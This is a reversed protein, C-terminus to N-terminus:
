SKLELLLKKDARNRKQRAKSENDNEEMKTMIQEKLYLLNSSAEELTPTNKGANDLAEQYLSESQNIYDDCISYISKWRIMSLVGDAIFTKSRFIDKREDESFKEKMMKIDKETKGGSLNELAIQILKWFQEAEKLSSIATNLAWKSVETAIITKKLREIQNDDSTIQGTLLAVKGIVERNIDELENRQKMIEVVQDRASKATATADTAMQSFTASLENFAQSMTEFAAKSEKYNKNAEKLDQENQTIKGSLTTANSKATQLSGKIGEIGDLEDQETDTITEDDRKKILEEKRSVLTNVKSDAAKKDTDLQSKAAELESKKKEAQEVEAQKEKLEKEQQALKREDEDSVTKGGNVQSIASNVMGVPNTAATYASLGAGVAKFLGGVLNLWFAKETDDKAQSSADTLEDALRKLKVKLDKAKAEQSDKMSHLEDVHKQLEDLSHSKSTLLNTVFKSDDALKGSVTEYEKILDRCSEVMKSAELTIEEFVGIALAENGAILYEYATTVSSMVKITTKKYITMTNGSNSILDGVARQRDQTKVALGELNVSANYALYMLDVTLWLNKILKDLHVDPFTNEIESRVLFSGKKPPTLVTYKEAKYTFSLKEPEYVAENKILYLIDTEEREEVSNENKM